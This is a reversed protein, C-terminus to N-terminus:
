KESWMKEQRVLTDQPDIEEDLFHTLVTEMRIGQSGKFLVIDGQKIESKLDSILQDKDQLKYSRLKSSEIQRAAEFMHAGFAFVKDVSNVAKKLIESHARAAYIGLELMDGLVVIKKGSICSIDSIAQIARDTAYPSANYTDDILKIGSRGPLIRMRGPTAQKKEFMDYNKINLNLMDALAIAALNPYIQQKGLNNRLIMENGNVMCKMYIDNEDCVFDLNDAYWDAEKSFGFSVKEGAFERGISKSFGSDFDYILKINSSTNLISKKEEVLEQVDKFNEIHVPLDPISTLVVVDVNLWSSVKQIDGPHDAGVELVLYKPFHREFFIKLLGMVINSIWGNISSWQNPLALITLPIGIETNFSKESKRASLGLEDLLFFISDKTSTKGVNGTVVIVFPKHKKLMLRAETILIYSLLYKLIKKM